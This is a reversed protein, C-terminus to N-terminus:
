VGKRKRIEALASRVFSPHKFWTDLGSHPGYAPIAMISKAREGLVEGALERVRLLHFGGSVVGIRCPSSPLAGAASLRDIRELSFVLNEATNRARNEFVIREPPVGREWLYDRMFEAESEPGKLHLNGGTVVYVTKPNRRGVELAKEARYWCNPSGLVILVDASLGDDTFDGFIIRNVVPLSEAIEEPHAAFRGVAEEVVRSLDYQIFSRREDETVTRALGLFTKMKEDHLAMLKRAFDPLHRTSMSDGGRCIYDFMCDPSTAIRGCKAIFAFNFLRDEGFEVSEDFRLAFRGIVSKRYFKNCQSYVLLHRDVVYHDAFASPSEYIRPQLPLRTTAGNEVRDFAFVVLDADRGFWARGKQLFGDHLRDDGDLFCVFEGRAAELGINRAHSAGGHPGYIVRLNAAVHATEYRKLAAVTAANSGDDVVICECDGSLQRLVSDLCDELYASGNYIPVIVSLYRESM